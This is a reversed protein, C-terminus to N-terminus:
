FMAFCTFSGEPRFAKCGRAARSWAAEGCHMKLAPRCCCCCGRNRREFSLSHTCHVAVPIPDLMNMPWRQDAGRSTTLRLGGRRCDVQHCIFRWRHSHHTRYTTPPIARQPKARQTGVADLISQARTALKALVYPLRVMIPTSREFTHGFGFM